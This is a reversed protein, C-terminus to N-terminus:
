FKRKGQKLLWDKTLLIDRNNVVIQDTENIVFKPTTVNKTVNREVTVEFSNIIVCASGNYNVTINTNNLSKQYATTLSKCYTIYDPACDTGNWLKNIDCNPDYEYQTM